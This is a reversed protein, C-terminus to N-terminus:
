AVVPERMRRGFREAFIPAYVDDVAFGSALALQDTETEIREAEAEGLMSGDARHIASRAMATIDELQKREIM